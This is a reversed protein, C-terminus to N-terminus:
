LGYLYLLFLLTYYNRSGSINIFHWEEWVTSLIVDLLWVIELCYQM